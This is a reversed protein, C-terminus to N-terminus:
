MFSAKTRGKAKILKEVEKKGLIAKMKKISEEDGKKKLKELGNKIREYRDEDAQSLKSAQKGIKEKKARKSAAKDMVDDDFQKEAAAQAVSDYSKNFEDAQKYKNSALRSKGVRDTYEAERIDAFTVQFGKFKKLNKVRTLTRNVDNLVLRIFADIDPENKLDQTVLRAISKQYEEIEELQANAERSSIENLDEENMVRFDPKIKGSILNEVKRSMENYDIQGDLHLDIALMVDELVADENFMAEKLGIMKMLPEEEAGGRKADEVKSIIRELRSKIQKMAELVGGPYDMENNIKKAFSAVKKDFDPNNSQESLVSTIEAKIAEKLESKKM